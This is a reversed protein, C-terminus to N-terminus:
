DLRHIPKVLILCPNWEDWLTPLVKLKMFGMKQYFAITQDYEKYHGEDVTKVQILKYYLAAEREFATYLLQGIGQRHYSKKVGMAHLEACDASTESLTIFGAVKGDAKAVFMTLERAEDIYAQTSEPLGFWEPLDQLVEKVTSARHNSDMVKTIEITM